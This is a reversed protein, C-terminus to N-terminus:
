RPPPARRKSVYPKRPGRPPGRDEGRPPGRDEGRPPGRDEGRPPGRDEGRPPGRDEHRPPGSPRPPARHPAALGLPEVKIRDDEDGTPRAVAALFREAAWPAIEVRTERDLVDIRGVERRTLDGRRCLFPLVWRPDAQSHRGISLRFWVGEGGGTDRPIRPAPPPLATIEEPAPLTSRLARFLAAAVQEPSREALLAQGLAVDDEDLAVDAAERAQAALRERDKAHVDDASPPGSWEAQLRAMALLREAIRRRSHPVLMVATGKRGARGTRGSRHLLTEKDRPLEAHIVLGLDPLDIGRAAVDTAVCVRARRDRLAQLARNREAQTLEGSLSVASFGRESLSGHLRAVQERTNCFVLAGSAEFWRLANVVAAEVERPGVLMARYAIDGHREGEATAAIRMADRQYSAALAAIERPVTASFMLTRRTEPAAELIAELDDRFGMDLMEDAEDLVAARLQSMDLVNREVHDRLRGPTGVVIEAGISLMRRDGRVETGGVCAIVRAGTGSYLWALEDRVQQALERTPAIILALPAGTRPAELVQAAMALGFAVTKGSGTQASVLLDRGITAPDLVAAQVPTPEAYGREALAQAIPKPLEPFPM